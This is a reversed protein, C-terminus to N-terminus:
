ANAPAAQPISNCLRVSAAAIERTIVLNIRNQLAKVAQGIANM